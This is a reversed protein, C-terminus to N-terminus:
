VKKHIAEEEQRVKDKAEEESMGQAIYAKEWQHRIYTMEKEFENSNTTPEQQEQIERLYEQV